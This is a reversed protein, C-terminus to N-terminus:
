AKTLAANSDRDVVYSSPERRQAMNKVEFGLDDLEVLVDCESDVVVRTACLDHAPQDGASGGHASEDYGLADLRLRLEHM